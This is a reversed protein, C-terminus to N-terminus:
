LSEAGTQSIPVFSLVVSVWVAGARLSLLGLPPSNGAAAPLFSSPFRFSPPFPCLPFCSAPTMTQASHSCPALLFPRTPTVALSYLRPNIVCPGGGSAAGLAVFLQAAELLCSSPKPGERGLFDQQSGRPSPALVPAPGPGLSSQQSGPSNLPACHSVPIKGAPSAGPEDPAGKEPCKRVDDQTWHSQPGM